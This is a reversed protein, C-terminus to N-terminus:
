FRRRPFPEEIPPWADADDEAAARMEEEEREGATQQVMSRGWLWYHLYGFGVMLAVVVVAGVVLAMFPSLIVVAFVVMGAGGLLALLIGLFTARASSNQRDNPEM